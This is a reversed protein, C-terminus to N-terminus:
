GCVRWRRDGRSSWGLCSRARRRELRSTEGTRLSWRRRLYAQRIRRGYIRRLERNNEEYNYDLLEGPGEIKQLVRDGSGLPVRKVPQPRVSGDSRTCRQSNLFGHLYSTLSVKVTALGGRTM